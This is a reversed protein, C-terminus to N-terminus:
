FARTIVAESRLSATPPTLISSVQTAIVGRKCRLEGGQSNGGIIPPRKYPGNETM